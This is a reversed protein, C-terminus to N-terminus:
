CCHDSYSKERDVSSWPQGLRGALKREAGVGPVEIEQYVFSESKGELVSVSDLRTWSAVKCPLAKLATVRTAETSKSRRVDSISRSVKGDMVVM